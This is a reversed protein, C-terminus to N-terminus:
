KVLKLYLQYNGQLKAMEDAYKDDIEKCVIKKEENIKQKLKQIKDFMDKVSENEVQVQINTTTPEM